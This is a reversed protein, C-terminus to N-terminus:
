RVQEKAWSSDDKLSQITRHPVLNQTAFRRRGVLALVGGVILVVVGVILAAAWPPVVNSLGLIAAALLALVGCFAIVGGAVLLGAGTTLQAIKEAIEAKALAIEQRFLLSTERALDSFLASLSREQKPLPYPEAPDNRRAQQAMM